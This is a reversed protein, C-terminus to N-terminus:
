GSQSGPLNLPSTHCLLHLRSRSASACAFMAWPAERPRLTLVQDYLVQGREPHALVRSVIGFPDYHVGTHNKNLDLMIHATPDLLQWRGGLVVVNRSNNDEVTGSHGVTAPQAPLDLAPITLPAKVECPSVMAYEMQLYDADYSIMNNVTAASCNCSKVGGLGSM